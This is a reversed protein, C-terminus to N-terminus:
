KISKTAWIPCSIEQINFIESKAAPTCMLPLLLKTLDMQGAAPGGKRPKIRAKISVWGKKPGKSVSYEYIHKSQNNNKKGMFSSENKSSFICIWKQGPILKYKLECSEAMSSTTIALSSLVFLGVIAIKEDTQRGKWCKSKENLANATQAKPKLKLYARYAEAADEYREWDSYLEALGKYPMAYRHDLRAAERYAKEAEKKEAESAGFAFDGLKCKAMGYAEPAVHLGKDWLTKYSIYAKQYNEDQMDKQARPVLSEELFVLYRKRGQSPRNNKAAERVEKLHTMKAVFEARTPPVDGRTQVLASAGLSQRMRNMNMQMLSQTQRIQAAWPGLANEQDKLISNKVRYLNRWGKAVERCDYGALATYEMGQADAVPEFRLRPDLWQGNDDKEPISAIVDKIGYYASQAAHLAAIKKMTKKYTADGSWWEDELEITQMDVAYDVAVDLLAGFLAGAAAKRRENREAAKIEQYIGIYYAEAISAVEHSLVGAPQAENEMAYLVGTTMILHGDVYSYLEPQPSELVTVSLNVGEPLRKGKPVLKKVIHDAYRKILPDIIIPRNQMDSRYTQRAELILSRGDENIEFARADTAILCASLFLLFFVIKTFGRKPLLNM